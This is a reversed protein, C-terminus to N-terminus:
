TLGPWSEAHADFRAELRRVVDAPLPGANVADVNARMHELSGSGTLITGVGDAYAAFRAAAELWPVGGVDDPTLGLATWRPWYATAYPSPPPAARGPVANALPRKVLVGVGAAAAQRLAGRNAQDLLSYSTEVVDFVGLDLACTLADNDGSYGIFRAKGAAKAERVAEVVEGRELLARECSHLLVVDVVETQLRELSRDITKRIEGRSWAPAYGEVAGTKTVLVFEDRRARLARGIVSEARGYAAATDIVNVGAELIGDLLRAAEEYAYGPQGIPVSGYGLVSVDLGTRGLVRRPVELRVSM